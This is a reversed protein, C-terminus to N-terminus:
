LVKLFLSVVSNTVSVPRWGRDVYEIIKLKSLQVTEEKINTVKTALHSIEILFRHDLTRGRLNACELIQLIPEVRKKEKSGLRITDPIEETSNDCGIKLYKTPNKKIHIHSLINNIIGM